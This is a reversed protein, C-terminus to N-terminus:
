ATPATAGTPIIFAIDLSGVAEPLDGEECVYLRSPNGASDTQVCSAVSSLLSAIQAPTPRAAWGSTAGLYMLDSDDGDAAAVIVRCGRAPTLFNWQGNDWYAIHTEEGAFAGTAGTETVLYRDGATGATPGTALVSAVPMQWTFTSAVPVLYRAM